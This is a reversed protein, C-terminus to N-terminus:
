RYIITCLRPPEAMFLRTRINFLRILLSAITAETILNNPNIVTGPDLGSKIPIYRVPGNLLYQNTVNVGTVTVYITSPSLCDLNTAGAPPNNIIDIPPIAAVPVPGVAAQAFDGPSPVAAALAAASFVEVIRYSGIPVDTFQYGGTLDTMVYLIYGTTINQLAIPVGAIGPMSISAM